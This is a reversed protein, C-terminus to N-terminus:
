NRLTLLTIFLPQSRMRQDPVSLKIPYRPSFFPDTATPISELTTDPSVDHVDPQGMADATPRAQVTPCSSHHEPPHTHSVAIGDATSGTTETAEVEDSAHHHGCSCTVVKPATPCTPDSCTVPAAACTCVRIPLPGLLTLVIILLRM